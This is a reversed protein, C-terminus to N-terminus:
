RRWRYYFGPLPILRNNTGRQDTPDSRRVLLARNINMAMGLHHQDSSEWDVGIPAHLVLAAGTRNTRTGVAWLGLGVFPRTPGPGLYQKAVVSVSLDRFSWTGFTLDLSRDGWVYEVAFGVFSIGGLTLGLRLGEPGEGVSTAAHGHCPCALVPLLCLLGALAIGHFRHCCRHPRIDSNM